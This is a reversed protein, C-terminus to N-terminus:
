RNGRFHRGRPVDGRKRRSARSMQGRLSSVRKGVEDTWESVASSMRGSYEALPIAVDRSRSWLVVVAAVVLGAGVALVSGIGSMGSSPLVMEAHNTVTYLLDYYNVNDKKMPLTINTLGESSTLAAYGSPISTEEISYSYPGSSNLALDTFQVIAEVNEAGQLTGNQYKNREEETLFRYYYYTGNANHVIYSRNDKTYRGADKDFNPDGENISTRMALRTFVQNGVPTKSGNEVKYLTFGAGELVEGTGTRKTITISGTRTNNYIVENINTQDPSESPNSIVGTVSGNSVTVETGNITVSPTYGLTTETILYQARVPLGQITLTDGHKIKVTRMNDETFKLSGSSASGDSRTISYKYAGELPNAGDADYVVITFPFYLSQGGDDLVSKKIVLDATKNKNNNFTFSPNGIQKEVVGTAEKNGPTLWSGENVRISTTYDNANTETVKVTMGFPVGTAVIKQNAALQILYSSSNDDKKIYSSSAADGDVSVSAIKWENTFVSKTFTLTGKELTASTTTDVVNYSVHSSADWTIEGTVSTDFTFTANLSVDNGSVTKTISFAGQDTDKANRVRVITSGTFLNRISTNRIDTKGAIASYILDGAHAEYNQLTLIGLWDSDTEFYPDPRVGDANQHAGYDMRASDLGYHLNVEGITNVDDGVSPSMSDIASFLSNLSTSTIGTSTIDRLTVDVSGETAYRVMTSLLKGLGKRVTIGDNPELADAYVRGNWSVYVPIEINIIGYGTPAKTEKLIYYKSAEFSMKSTGFVAGGESGTESFILLGKEDTTGSAVSHNIDYTYNNTDSNYTAEYLSFEAGQLANGNIDIKEVALESRVNPVYIRTAFTRNFDSINLMAFHSQEISDGVVSDIIYDVASEVKEENSIDNDVRAYIATAIANYKEDTTTGATGFVKSLAELDLFYYAVTLDTYTEDNTVNVYRGADGPLDVLKGQYRQNDSNWELYWKQYGYDTGGSYTAGLIQYLAAKLIAKQADVNSASGTNIKYDINHFGDINSGYIPYWNSEDDKMLPVALILGAQGKDNAIVEDNNQYKLSGAQHISATFNTVAGTTWLNDVLLLNTGSTSGSSHKQVKDYRLVIDGNSFYGEPATERLIYYSNQSWDYDPLVVRGSTDSTFVSTGDSAVILNGVEYEGAEASAIPNGSADTKAEFIQFKADAIPNGNQDLKIVENEVPEMLNFSLTLNSDTNGRELYFMRLTHRTGSALTNGSLTIETDANAAKVMARITTDITSTENPKKAREIHVAGTSFDITVKVEDHIGGLDAILVNDIYIWVDDDGSFEFVMPKANTGVSVLGDIPQQFDVAMSLGLYHNISPNVSNINAQKLTGDNADSFVKDVEEFPLFQGTGSTGGNNIGWTNYVNFSNKEKDFEAFNEHSSYYYNGDENIKFLGTVDTYARGYANEDTDKLEDGTYLISSTDFLYGLDEEPNFNYDKYSINFYNQNLNLEPFGNGALRHKVIGQLAGGSGGTWTNWEGLGISKRFLLGHGKNVGSSVFQKGRPTDGTIEDSPFDSYEEDLIWYDFLNLEVNSPSVTSIMNNKLIDETLASVTTNPGFACKISVTKSNQSLVTVDDQKLGCDNQGLEYEKILGLLYENNFTIDKSDNFRFGKDDSHAGIYESVADFNMNEINWNIDNSTNSVIVDTRTVTVPDQSVAGGEGEGSGTSGETADPTYTYTYSVKISNVDRNLDSIVEKLSIDRADRVRPYYIYNSSYLGYIHDWKCSTVTIEIPSQPTEDDSSDQDGANDLTVHLTDEVDIENLGDSEETTDDNAGDTVAALACASPDSACVPCDINITDASCAETCTCVVAAADTGDEPNGEASATASFVATLVVVLVLAILPLAFRSRKTMELM